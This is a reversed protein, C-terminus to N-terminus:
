PGQWTLVPWLPPGAVHRGEEEMFRPVTHQILHLKQWGSSFSSAM